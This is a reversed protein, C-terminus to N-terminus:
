NESAKERRQFRIYLQVLDYIVSALPTLRPDKTGELVENLAELEPMLLFMCSAAVNNSNEVWELLERSETVRQAMTALALESAMMQEIPDMM